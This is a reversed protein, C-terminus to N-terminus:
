TKVCADGIVCGIVLAQEPSLKDMDEELLLGVNFFKKLEALDSANFRATLKPSLELCRSWVLPHNRTAEYRPWMTLGHADAGAPMTDAEGYMSSIETVATMRMPLPPPTTPDANGLQMQINRHDSMDRKRQREVMKRCSHPRRGTSM